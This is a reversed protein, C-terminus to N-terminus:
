STVSTVVDPFLLPNLRGYVDMWDPPRLSEHGAFPDDGGKVDALCSSCLGSLVRTHGPAPCAAHDTQPPPGLEVIRTFLVAGLDRIGARDRSLEGALARPSWGEGLADRLARVLRAQGAPSLDSRYSAILALATHTREDDTDPEEGSNEPERGRRTAPVSSSAHSSSPPTPPSLNPTRKSTPGRTQRAKTASRDCRGGPDTAGEDGSPGTNTTGEDDPVSSGTSTAGEDGPLVAPFEFKTRQGHHAYFPRGHRDRGLEVRIELWKKGVRALTEQVSRPSLDTAEALRKVGPWGVRTSDHCMDAIELVLLREAPSLIGPPLADRVERRLAFGM